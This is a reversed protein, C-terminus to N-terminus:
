VDSVILRSIAVRLIRTDASGAYHDSLRYSGRRVIQIQVWDDSTPPQLDFTLPVHDEPAPGTRDAAVCRGGTWIQIEDDERDDTSFGGAMLTIRFPETRGPPWAFDLCAVPETTWFGGWEEPV